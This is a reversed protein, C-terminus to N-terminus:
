KTKSRLWAEMMALYNEMDHIMKEALARLGSDGGHAIEIKALDIADQYHPIMMRVFDVDTNGAFIIHRNVMKIHTEKFAKTAPTDSPSPMDHRPITGHGLGPPLIQGQAHAALLAAAIATITLVINSQKLKTAGVNNAFVGM